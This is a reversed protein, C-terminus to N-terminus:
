IKKTPCITNLKEILLSGPLIDYSVICWSSIFLLLIIIIRSKLNFSFAMLIVCIIAFTIQDQFIKWYLYEKNIPLAKWDLPTLLSDLEESLLIIFIAGVLLQSSLQILFFTIFRNLNSIPLILEKVRDKIRIYIGSVWTLIFFLIYTIRFLKLVKLVMYPEIYCNVNDKFEYYFQVNGKFISFTSINFILCIVYILCLYAVIRHSKLYFKIVNWIKLHIVELFNTSFKEM